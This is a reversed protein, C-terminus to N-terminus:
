KGQEIFKKMKKLENKSIYADGFNLEKTDIIKINYGYTSIKFDKFPFETASPLESIEILKNISQLAEERGNGLYISIIEVDLTFDTRISIFYTYGKRHIECFGMRFNLSKTPTKPKWTDQANAMPSFTIIALIIM